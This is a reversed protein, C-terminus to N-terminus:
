SRCVAAVRQASTRDRKIIPRAVRLPQDSLSDASTSRAGGLYEALFSSEFTLTRIGLQDLRKRRLISVPTQPKSGANSTIGDSETVAVAIGARGVVIRSEIQDGHQSEHHRDRRPCRHGGPAATPRRGWGASMTTILFKANAWGLRKPPRGSFSIV